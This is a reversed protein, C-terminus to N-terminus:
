AQYPEADVWTLPRCVTHLNRTPRSCAQMKSSSTVRDCTIICATLAALASTQPATIFRWHLAGATKVCSNIETELSGFMNMTLASSILSM